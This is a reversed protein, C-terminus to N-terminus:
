DVIYYVLLDHVIWGFLILFHKDLSIGRSRIPSIMLCTTWTLWQYDSMHILWKNNKKHMVVVPTNTLYGHYVMVRSKVAFDHGM